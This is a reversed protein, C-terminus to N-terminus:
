QEQANERLLQQINERGHVLAHEHEFFNRFIMNKQRQYKVRFSLDFFTQFLRRILMCHLRTSFIHFM